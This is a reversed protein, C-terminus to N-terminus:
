RVLEAIRETGIVVGSAGVVASLLATTWGSGCGVDLIRMGEAPQLRELMFAVTSPQSITQGHGIPLPADVYAVARDELPVFQGRDVARFARLLAPTKLVGSTQLYLILEDHSQM